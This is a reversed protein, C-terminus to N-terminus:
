VVSLVFVHDIDALVTYEDIAGEGTSDAFGAVFAKGFHVFAWFWCVPLILVDADWVAGVIVFDPVFLFELFFEVLVLIFVEEIFGRIVLGM